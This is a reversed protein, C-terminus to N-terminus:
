LYRLSVVVLRVHSQDSVIDDVRVPPSSKYVTRVWPSSQGVLRMSFQVPSLGGAKQIVRRLNEDLRELCDGATEHLTDVGVLKAVFDISGYDSIFDTVQVPGLSLANSLATVQRTPPTITVPWQVSLTLPGLQIDAYEGM